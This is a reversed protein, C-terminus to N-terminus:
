GSHWGTTGLSLGEVSIENRCINKILIYNVYFLICLYYINPEIFKSLQTCGCLYWGFLFYFIEDVWFTGKYRKKTWEGRWKGPLWKRIETVMSKDTEPNMYISYYPAAGTTCCNLAAQLVLAHDQLGQISDWTLSETHYRSRGRGTDRGREGERHIFLYFRLFFISFSIM